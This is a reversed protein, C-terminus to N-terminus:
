ISMLLVGALILFVGINKNISIEEKFFIIGIFYILIINISTFSYAYSLEFEKLIYFWILFRIGAIFYASLILPNTLYKKYFLVKNKLGKPAHNYSSVQWKLIVQSYGVLIPISLLLIYKQM